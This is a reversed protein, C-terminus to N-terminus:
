ADDGQLRTLRRLIVAHARLAEGESLSIYEYRATGAACAYGITEYAAFTGDGRITDFERELTSVVLAGDPSANYVRTV